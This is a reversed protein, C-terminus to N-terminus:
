KARPIHGGPRLVRTFAVTRDNGMRPDYYNSLKRWSEIGNQQVSQLNLFKKPGIGTISKRLIKYFEKNIRSYEEEDEVMESADIYGFPKDPKMAEAKDLIMAFNEVLQSGWFRLDEAFAVYTDNKGDWYKPEMEKAAKVKKVWDSEDAKSSRMKEMIEIKMWTARDEMEQKLQNIEAYQQDMKEKNAKMEVKMLVVEGEVLVTREMLSEVTM